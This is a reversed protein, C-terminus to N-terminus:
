CIVIMVEAILRSIAWEDVINWASIRNDAFVIDNVVGSDQPM